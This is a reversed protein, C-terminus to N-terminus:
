CIEQYARVIQAAQKQLAHRQSCGGGDAAGSVLTQTRSKQDTPNSAGGLASLMGPSGLCVSDPSHTPAQSAQLPSAAVNSWRACSTPITAQWIPCCLSPLPRRCTCDGCRMCTSGTMANAGRYPGASRGMVTGSRRARGPVATARPLHIPKTAGSREAGSAAATCSVATISTAPSWSAWWWRFM